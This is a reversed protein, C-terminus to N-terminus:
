MRRASLLGVLFGVAVSGGITAWPHHGVTEHINDNLRHAQADLRGYSDQLRQEFQEGRAVVRDIGDHLYDAARQAVYDNRKKQPRSTRAM